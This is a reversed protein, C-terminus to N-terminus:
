NKKIGTVKLIKRPVTIQEKEDIMVRRSSLIDKLEQKRTEPLIAILNQLFAITTGKLHAITKQFFDFEDIKTVFTYLEEIISQYKLEIDIEKNDLDDVNDELPDITIEDDSEEENDMKDKSTKPKIYQPDHGDELSKLNIIM